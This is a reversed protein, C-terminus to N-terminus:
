AASQLSKTTQLLSANRELFPLVPMAAGFMYPNAGMQRWYAIMAPHHREPRSIIGDMCDLKYKVAETIEAASNQEIGYGQRNTVVNNILYGQVPQRYTEGLTLSRGTRKDVVRKLIFDTQDSWLQWDNSICNALLMPRGFSLCATTLGSTTGIVFRCTALLFIDMSASKQRSVAYDVLREMPAMPRMSNDGLRIVWGGRKTIEKIASMYDDISSNRHTSIGSTSEVYFGGERVHLGVYWADKPVGLEALMRVGLERDEDHLTLLPARKEAAWRVQARAGARTWPEAEGSESPYAMFNDGFMRQYPFLEDVLAEDRVIVYYREWYKLYADNAVKNKPALLVYNAKPYMGLQAMKMYIDLLGIHGFQVVWEYPLLRVPLQRDYNKSVSAIQEILRKPLWTNRALERQYDLMNQYQRFSDSFRGQLFLDEAFQGYNDYVLFDGARQLEFRKPVYNAIDYRGAYNQHAMVTNPQLDVARSFSAKANPLDAKLLYARGLMRADSHSSRHIAIARKLFAIALDPNLAYLHAVGIQHNLYHDNIDEFKPVDRVIRSFHMTRFLAEFYMNCAPRTRARILPRFMLNLTRSLKWARETHGAALQVGLIALHVQRAILMMLRALIRFGRRQLRTATFVYRGMFSSTALRWTPNALPKSIKAILRSQSQAIRFLLSYFTSIRRRCWARFEAPSLPIGRARLGHILGYVLKGAPRRISVPVFLRVNRRFSRYATKLRWRVVPPLAIRALASRARALAARIRAFISPGRVPRRRRLSLRRISGLHSLLDRTEIPM